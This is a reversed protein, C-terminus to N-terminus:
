DAAEEEEEAAGIRVKVKEKDAIMEAKVDAYKYVKTNHKKMATTLTTKADQEEKGAAMREDRKDAYDIAARHIEPIKEPAMGDIYQQEGRKAKKKKAM